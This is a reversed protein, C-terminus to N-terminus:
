EKLDFSKHRSELLFTAMVTSPSEVSSRRLSLSLKMVEVTIPSKWSGLPAMVKEETTAGHNDLKQTTILPPSSLLLLSTSSLSLIFYISVQ